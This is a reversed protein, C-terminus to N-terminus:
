WSCMFVREERQSRKGCGACCPSTHWTVQVGKLVLGACLRLVASTLAETLSQVYTDPHLDAM